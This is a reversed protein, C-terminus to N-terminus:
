AMIGSASTRGVQSSSSFSGNPVIRLNEGMRDVGAKMELGEAIGATNFYGPVEDEFDRMLMTRM